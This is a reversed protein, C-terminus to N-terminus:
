GVIVLMWCGVMLGLDWHRFGGVAGKGSAGGTMIMIGQTGNGDVGQQDPNQNNVLQMYSSLILAVTLFTGIVLFMRKAPSIVEDCGDSADRYSDAM